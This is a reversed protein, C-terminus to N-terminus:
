RGVLAARGSRVRRCFVLGLLFNTRIKQYKRPPPHIQLLPLDPLPTFRPPLSDALPTFDHPSKNPHNAHRSKNRVERPLPKLGDKLTLDKFTLDKFTLEKFTLNISWYVDCNFCNTADASNRDGSVRENWVSKNKSLHPDTAIL